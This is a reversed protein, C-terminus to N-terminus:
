IRPLWTPPPCEAELATLYAAAILDTYCRDSDSSGDRVLWYQTAMNHAFRAPASTVSENRITSPNPNLLSPITELLDQSNYHAWYIEREAWEESESKIRDWPLPLLSRWNVFERLMRKPFPELHKPWATVKGTLYRECLKYLKVLPKYGNRRQWDAQQAYEVFPRLVITTFRIFLRSYTHEALTHTPYRIQLGILATESDLAFRPVWMENNSQLWGLTILQARLKVAWAPVGWTALRTESERLGDDSLAYRDMYDLVPIAKQWQENQELTMTDMTERTM